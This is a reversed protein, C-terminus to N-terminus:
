EGPPSLAKTIADIMNEFRPAAAVTVPALGRATDPSIAIYHLHARASQAQNQFLTASRPSFLPVLVPHEGELLANAEPTLPRATQDYAEVVRCPRGQASLRQALDGRRHRGALHVLAGTDNRLIMGLLAQADGDACQTQLGAASAIEATRQGVCWARGELKLQAVRRAGEPSTLVLETETVKGVPLDVIQLLPSIVAKPRTGLREELADLVRQANIQTRTLLLHM